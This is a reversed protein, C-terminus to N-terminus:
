RISVSLSSNEGFRRILRISFSRSFRGSRKAGRTSSLRSSRNVQVNGLEGGLSVVV